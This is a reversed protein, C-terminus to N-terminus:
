NSGGTVDVLNHDIIRQDYWPSNGVLIIRSTYERAKETAEEKSNAQVIVTGIDTRKMVFEYSNM